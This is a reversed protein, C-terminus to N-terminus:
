LNPHSGLLYNPLTLTRKWHTQSFQSPSPSPLALSPEQPLIDGFLPWHSWLWSPFVPCDSVLSGLFCVLVTKGSLLREATREVTKGKLSLTPTVRVASAGRFAMMFSLM